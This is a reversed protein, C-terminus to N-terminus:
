SHDIYETDDDSTASEFKYLLKYYILTNLSMSISSLFVYGLLILIEKYGPFENFSIWLLQLFPCALLIHPEWKCSSVVLYAVSMLKIGFTM